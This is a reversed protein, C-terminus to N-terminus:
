IISSMLTIGNQRKQFKNPKKLGLITFIQNRLYGYDTSYIYINRIDKFFFISCNTDIIYNVPDSYGLSMSLYKNNNSLKSIKLFKLGLGQINLGILDGFVLTRCSNQFISLFGSIQTKKNTKSKILRFTILKKSNDLSFQINKPVKLHNIGLPGKLYLVSNKRKKLSLLSSYKLKYCM